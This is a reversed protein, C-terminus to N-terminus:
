YIAFYIKFIRLILNPFTRFSNKVDKTTKLKTNPDINSGM